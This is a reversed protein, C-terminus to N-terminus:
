KKGLKYISGARDVLYLEGAEDEGFSTINFDTQFLLTNQWTNNMDKLLGWVNGSCFDGYIYIGQWDPMSGRYSYGGTVSCGLNHEYEWIPFVFSADQPPSGEFPHLGEWFNWGFNVGYPSAPEWINIEEWQNQGVDGIYLDGTLRDFSYRWPNRLGSAWIEPLGKGNTYPNDPPIAYPNGNDIDLRLMSGLLTSINQGNGKPDNASGGDGLGIYLYGDPGFLLHGGNHNGFPQNVRLIPRESNPDATNPDSSVQLRSIVTNGNLDTYNIFFTGNQEYNPHFALGLLGQENSSVGVQSRLDLFPTSLLEGNQLIRINGRQELIFLRNTGDGPDAMGVPSSLGGVTEPWHYESPNPFGQVNVPMAPTDTLTPENQVLTQTACSTGCGGPCDDPCFYVEDATCPPPTCVPQPTDSPEPTPTRTTQTSLTLTPPLTGVQTAPASPLLSCASLILILMAAHCYGRFITKSSQM